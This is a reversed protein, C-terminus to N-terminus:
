QTTRTKFSVLTAGWGGAEPTADKFRSVWPTRSLIGRVRERQFGIGRGHILRVIEFGRAYAEELYAEVADPIDRPLFLHLDLSDEIPLEFIPEGVPEDSDAM